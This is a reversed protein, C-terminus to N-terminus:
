TTGCLSGLSIVVGFQYFKLRFCKLSPWNLQIVMPLPLQLNIIINGGSDGFFLDITVHM